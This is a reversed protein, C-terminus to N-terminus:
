GGASPRRRCSALDYRLAQSTAAAYPQMAIGEPRMDRDPMADSFLTLVEGQWGVALPRPRGLDIPQGCGSKQCLVLKLRAEGSAPARGDPTVGGTTQLVLAAVRGDASRATRGCGYDAASAPQIVGVLLAAIVSRLLAPGLRGAVKM